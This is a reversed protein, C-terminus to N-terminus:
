YCFYDKKKYFCNMRKRIQFDLFFIGIGAVSGGIGSSLFLFPFYVCLLSFPYIFSYYYYFVKALVEMKNIM